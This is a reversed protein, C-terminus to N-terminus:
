ASIYFFVSSLKFNKDCLASKATETLKSENKEEIIKEYKRLLGKFTAIGSLKQLEIEYNKVLYEILTKISQRLIFEFMELIASKILNDKNRFLISVNEFIVKFIDNKIINRFIPEELTGVCCRLIRIYDLHIYKEPSKLLPILNSILNNHLIFYRAKCGHSKIGYVILDCILHQSLEYSERLLKESPAKILLFDTLKQLFKDYFLDIFESKFEPDLLSKFFEAICYKVGDIPSYELMTILLSIIKYGSLKQTESLLISKIKSPMIQFCNIFLESANTKLLETKPMKYALHTSIDNSINTKVILNLLEEILESNFLKEFFEKKLDTQLQKSNNCIELLFEVASIKKDVEPSTLSSIIQSISSTNQFICNLIDQYNL